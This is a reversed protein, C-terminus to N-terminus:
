RLTENLGVSRPDRVPATFTASLAMPLGWCTLKTPRPSAGTTASVGDDSGNGVCGVLVDLAGRDILKVFRPSMLRVNPLITAVPSKECVFSQPTVRPAFAEHVILTTKLGVALPVRLPLIVMLSLAGPLGCVTLRVPVDLAAAVEKNNVGFTM